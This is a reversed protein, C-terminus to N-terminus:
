ELGSCKPISTTEFIVIGSTPLSIEGDGLLVATFASFSTVRFVTELQKRVAPSNTTASVRM